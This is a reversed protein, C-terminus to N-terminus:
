RRAAARRRRLFGVLLVLALAAAATPVIRLRWPRVASPRPWVWAFSGERARIREILAEALGPPATGSRLTVAFRETRTAGAAAADPHKLEFVVEGDPCTYSAVVASREVNGGSFKCGGALTEGRGMMAALFDDQGAPVVAEAAVSAAENGSSQALARPVGGCLLGGIGGHIALAL